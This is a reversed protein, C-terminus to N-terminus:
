RCSHRQVLVLFYVGSAQSLESRVRFAYKEAPKMSQAINTDTDFACPYPSGGSRSGLEVIICVALELTWVDPARM